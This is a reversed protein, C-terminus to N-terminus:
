EGGGEGGRCCRFGVDEYGAPINGPEVTRDARWAAGLHEGNSQFSGGRIVRDKGSEPGTPDTQTDDPYGSEHWDGVWEFVNGAMDLVGYPSAGDPRTGRALPGDAGCEELENDDMVALECTPEDTGWPYPPMEDACPGDAVTDCGGRAAREWQAETCLAGGTSACYSSAGYWTVRRAPHEELGAVPAWPGGYPGAVDENVPGPEFCKKGDCLNDTASTNMFAVFEANSVELRDIAYAALVVEHQPCMDCLGDSCSQVVSNCGMFFSGAPIPIHDGLPPDPGADVEPAVDVMVDVLQTIDEVDPLGAIDEIVDEQAAADPVDPAPLEPGVDLVDEAQLVDAFDAVQHVDAVDAVQVVDAMGAADAVAVVDEVVDEVADDVGGGPEVCVSSALDCTWGAACQADSSCAYGYDFVGLDDHCAGGLACALAVVFPLWCCRAPLPM